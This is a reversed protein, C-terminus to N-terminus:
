ITDRFSHIESQGKLMYYVMIVNNGVQTATLFSNPDAVADPNDGASGSKQWSGDEDRVVRQLKGGKSPFYYLYLKTVKTVQQNDLIKDLTVPVLALGTGNLSDDTNPIVTDKKWM